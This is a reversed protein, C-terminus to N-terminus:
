AAARGIAGQVLSWWKASEAAPWAPLPRPVCTDGSQRFVVKGASGMLFSTSLASILFRAVRRIPLPHKHRCRRRLPALARTRTAPAPAGVTTEFDIMGGAAAAAGPVLATFAISAAGQEPSQPCPTFQEVAACAAQLM